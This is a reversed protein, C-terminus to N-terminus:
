RSLEIERRILCTGNMEKDYTIELFPINSNNSACPFDKLNKIDHIIGQDKNTKQIACLSGRAIIEGKYTREEIADTISPYEEGDEVFKDEAEAILDKYEDFFEFDECRDDYVTIVDDGYDEILQKEVDEWDLEEDSVYKEVSFAYSGIITSSDQLCIDIDIYTDEHEDEPEEIDEIEEEAKAIANLYEAKKEQLEQYYEKYFITESDTIYHRDNECPIIIEPPNEYLDINYKEIADKVTLRM